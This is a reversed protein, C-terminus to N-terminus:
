TKLPTLTPAAGADPEPEAFPVAADAEVDALLRSTPKTAPCPLLSAIVSALPRVGCGCTGEAAPVLMLVRMVPYSVVLPVPIKLPVNGVAM